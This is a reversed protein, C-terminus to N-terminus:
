SLYGLLAAGGIIWPNYTALSTPLASAIGAGAAAGGLAGALGGSRLPPATQESIGGYNGGILGKYAQLFALDQNIGQTEIGRQIQAINGQLEAPILNAQIVQPTLALGRLATNLGQGYAANTLGATNRELTGLLERTALAEGIGRRSSNVNGTAVARSSLQPLVNQTFADTIAKNSLNLYQQFAPNAAPNLVNSTLYRQVDTANQAIGAIPVGADQLAQMQGRLTGTSGSFDPRPGQLFGQAQRFLEQIYPQQAEWPQTKTTTTAPGGGGGSM